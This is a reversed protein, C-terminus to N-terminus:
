EFHSEEEYGTVEEFLSDAPEDTLVENYLSDNGNYVEETSGDSVVLTLPTKVSVPTGPQVVKGNAKIELVWDRSDGTVYQPPALKFGLNTLIAQAELLACNGAVGEPIEVMPNLTNVYFEVTRGEKVMEGKAISQIVVANEPLNERYAKGVVTATLGLSEVKKTAVDINLGYLDPMEVEEGHRTYIDLGFLFIALLLGNDLLLGLCNLMVIRSFIKNAFEKLTM